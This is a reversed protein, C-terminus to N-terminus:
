NEPTRHAACTNHSAGSLFYICFSFSVEFYCFLYVMIHILFSVTPQLELGDSGLFYSQDGWEGFSGNFGAGARGDSM